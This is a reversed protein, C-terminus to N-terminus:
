AIFDINEALIQKHCFDKWENITDYVEVASHKKQSHTAFNDFDLDNKSLATPSEINYGFMTFKNALIGSVQM